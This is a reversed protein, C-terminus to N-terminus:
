GPSISCRRALRFRRSPISIGGAVHVRRASRPAPSRTLTGSGQCHPEQGASLVDRHVRDGRNVDGSALVLARGSVSSYGHRGLNGPEEGEHHEVPAVAEEPSPAAPRARLAGAGEEERLPLEPGPEEHDRGGGRGEAAPHEDTERPQHVPVPEGGRGDGQHRHHNRQGPHQKELALPHEAPAEAVQARSLHQGVVEAAVGDAEEHERDRQDEGDREEGQLEPRRAEEDADTVSPATERSM